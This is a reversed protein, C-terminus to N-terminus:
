CFSGQSKTPLELGHNGIRRNAYIEKSILSQCPKCYYRHGDSYVPSRYFESKPKVSHCHSCIKDNRPNGGADVIRQRAHIFLHYGQDQCVILNSGRNDKRNKNIHHIAIKPNIKHGLIKEVKLVHPRTNRTYEIKRSEAYCPHSCYKKNKLRWVPAYFTGGCTQCIGPQPGGRWRHNDPGTSYNAM